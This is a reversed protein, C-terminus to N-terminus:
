GGSNGGWKEGGEEVWGCVMVAGSESIQRACPACPDVQGFAAHVALAPCCHGLQSFRDLPNADGGCGLGEGWDGMRRGWSRSQLPAPTQVCRFCRRWAGACYHWSKRSPAATRQAGRATPTQWKWHTPWRSRRLRHCTWRRDPRSKCCCWLSQGPKPRLPLPPHKDPSSHRELRRECLRAPQCCSGPM